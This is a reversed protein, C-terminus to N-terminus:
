PIYVLQDQWQDDDGSHAAEILWDVLDRVRSRPRIVFMGPLHGGAGVHSGFFHPMTDHDFTVVVFGEREAWRLIDPDASSFPLDVPDGVRQIALPQNTSANHRVLAFWLAGRVNEDLLYRLAM